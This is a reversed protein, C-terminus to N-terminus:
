VPIAIGYFENQNFDFRGCELIKFNNDRFDAKWENLERNHIHAPENDYGVPVGFLLIGDPKLVRRIESFARSIDPSHELIHCAYVVDFMKDPWPLSELVGSKARGPDSIQAAMFQMTEESLDTCHYTFGAPKVYDRFWIEAFGSGVDLLNGSRKRSTILRLYEPYRIAMLKKWFADDGGKMRELHNLQNEINTNMRTGAPKQLFCILSTFLVDGSKLVIHPSVSLDDIELDIPNQVLSETIRLDLEGGVLKLPTSSLVAAEFQDLTFYEPHTSKNLILETAICVIGGPKTVRYMERVGQASNERSGYHEISSLCFTFDFSDNAFDLKLANMRLVTLREKRYPFCAFKSPDDLIAPNGEHDPNEYLDTAVVKEVHNTFYYFPRECGAAVALARARPHVAGLQHLGMLCMGYEWTKRHIYPGENLAQMHQCLTSGVRWDSVIPLRNLSTRQSRRLETDNIVKIYEAIETSMRKSGKPTRLDGDAAMRNQREMMPNGEMRKTVGDLFTEVGAAMLKATFRALYAARAAEGLQRRLGPDELLRKICAMLSEADGPEALLGSVADEIVEVMGGSRCGIVPKGYMMSELHVLGFSEFRSPALVVDAARYFGRLQAETVEGHFAVRDRVSATAPDAEFAERWTRGDPSPIRDNGVFDLWVQPFCTLLQPVIRLVVDISKRSELRGIYCLRILGPSPASLGAVKWLPTPEEAPLKTWDDLGLPVIALRNRDLKTQYAHEIESIIASSIAHIGDSETMIRRELELMPQAFATMFEKDTRLHPNTELYFHLSTQLSTVLPFRHDHLFAIGENDWIPAYVCDISRHSAIEEAEAFMTRSYNWIPAPVPAAGLGKIAPVDYARVNIRHVWVGEEFDVRDQGEGATLVHIQHGQTALSRALHHMYRGIGGVSGPPYARTLFLYCRQQAADLLPTFPLFTASSALSEVPPLRRQGSLGRALGDRLARDVEEEFRALDSDILLRENIAWRVHGRFEDIFASLKALMEHHCAHDRGNQLSFYTKNKMMSYWSTLVKSENRIHSPMYKHHVFGRDLQAVVWGNDVLRCVIDSEDLFYDYEEDFGRVDVIATRRFVSNTGLVHPFNFSEPFNYEPAPRDWSQDPTGFRNLTGFRWQYSKGTHSYVFGGAVGVEPDEFAPIIDNLWEPEPV